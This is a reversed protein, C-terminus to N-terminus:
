VRGQPESYRPSDIGTMYSLFKQYRPPAFESVWHYQGGSIPARPLCVDFDLSGQVPTNPSVYVGDGRAVVHCRWVGCVDLRVVLVPGGVRWRRTGTHKRQHLFYWESPTKAVM